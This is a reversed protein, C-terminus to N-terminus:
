EDASSDAAGEKKKKLLSQTGLTGGVGVLAGMGGAILWFGTGFITGVVDPVGTVDSKKNESQAVSMFVTAANGSFNYKNMDYCVVEGFRHVAVYGKEARNNNDSVEFDALLPNGAESNKTYYVANWREGKYANLDGAHYKGDKTKAEYVVDYKIYRDGDATKVLDVMAVPVEEYNPHYYDYIKNYLKIASYTLAAASAIYLVGTFIRSNRLAVSYAEAATGDVKETYVAYYDSNVEALKKAHTIHM